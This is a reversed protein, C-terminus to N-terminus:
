VSGGDLRGNICTKDLISAAILCYSLSLVPARTIIFLKLTHLTYTEGPRLVQLLFRRYGPYRYLLASALLYVGHVLYELGLLWVIQKPRWNPILRLVNQINPCSISRPTSIYSILKRMTHGEAGNGQEMTYLSPHSPILASAFYGKDLSHVEVGWRVGPYWGVTFEHDVIAQLWPHELNTHRSPKLIIRNESMVGLSFNLRM